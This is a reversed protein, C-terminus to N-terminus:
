KSQNRKAILKEISERDERSHREKPEKDWARSVADKGDELAEIAGLKWGDLKAAAGNKKWARQFHQVPTRGSVEYTALAIGFSMAIGTWILFKLFKWM